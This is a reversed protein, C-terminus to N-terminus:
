ISTRRLHHATTQSIYGIRPKVKEECCLGASIFHLSSQTRFMELTSHLWCNEITKSSLESSAETCWEIAKLPGVKYPNEIGDDLADLAFEM